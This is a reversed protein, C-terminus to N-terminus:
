HAQLAMPPVAPAQAPVTAQNLRSAPPLPQPGIKYPIGANKLDGCTFVFLLPSIGFRQRIDDQKFGPREWHPASYWNKDTSSYGFQLAISQGFVNEAIAYRSDQARAQRQAAPPLQLFKDYTDDLLEHARTDLHKRLHKMLEGTTIQSGSFENVTHQIFAGAGFESFADRALSKGGPIYNIISMPVFTHPIKFHIQEMFDFLGDMVQHQNFVTDNLKNTLLDIAQQRNIVTDDPVQTNDSCSQTLSAIPSALAVAAMTASKIFDRRSPTNTM